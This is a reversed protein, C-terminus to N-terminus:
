VKLLCSHSRAVPLTEYVQQLNVLRVPIHPNDGNRLTREAEATVEPSAGEILLPANDDSKPRASSCSRRSFGWYSPTFLFWLPRATGNEQPVVNDAFRVLPFDVLLVCYLIITSGM